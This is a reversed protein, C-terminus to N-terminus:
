HLLDPTSNCTLARDKEQTNGDVGLVHVAKSLADILSKASRASAYFCHDGSPSKRFYESYQEHDSVIIMQRDVEGIRIDVRITSDSKMVGGGELVM